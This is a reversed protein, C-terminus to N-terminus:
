KAELAQEAIELAVYGALFFGDAVMRELAERYRDREQRCVQHIASDCARKNYDHRLQKNESELRVVERRDEDRYDSIESM